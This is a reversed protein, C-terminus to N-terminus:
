FKWPVRALVLGRVERAGSNLLGGAIYNLQIGTTCVDDILLVRRDQIASSLAPTGRIALRHNWAAEEKGVFGRDKSAETTGAKVLLPDNPTTLPWREATDEAYAAGMIAEIHQLPKRDAHTPNGVVLDIDHVLHPHTEMWGILLRGFIAALFEYGPTEKFIRLYAAFTGSYQAVADIRTISRARRERGEPWGCLTNVCARGPALAQSCILCHDDPIPQLTKGACAGCIRPTGNILYACRRCNPFGLPEPLAYQSM